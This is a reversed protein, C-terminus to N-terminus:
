VGKNVTPLLRESKVNQHAVTPALRIRSLPVLRLIAGGLCDPQRYEVCARGYGVKGRSLLRNRDSSEKGKWGCRVVALLDQVVQLHRGFYTGGGNCGRVRTVKRGYNPEGGDRVV